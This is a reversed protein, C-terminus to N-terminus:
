SMRRMILIFLLLLIIVLKLFVPSISSEICVILHDHCALFLCVFYLKFVFSYKFFVFLLYVVFVIFLLILFVSDCVLFCFRSIRKM